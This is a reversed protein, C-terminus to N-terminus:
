FSRLVGGLKEAVANIILDSADKIEQDNLTHDVPNFTVSLAVSLKNDGISNGEYLDFVTVNDILVPNSNKTVDILHQVSTDKDILFAFDRKVSQYCSETLEKHAVDVKPIKYLFVEFCVVPRKIEYLHVINPHLEGFYGLCIDKFYVDASRVPHLYSKDSKRLEISNSEINLEQLISIVDSKVDFVDVSRDCKYLNRPLNNGYRVGCVVNSNSGCINNFGYVQGIEFIAIESSGYAQNEYVVQLLNLLLSPRMLNLKDSIPNDILLLESSYGLKEAFVMNTFSWTIVEMLGESLLLAKLRDHYDDSIDVHSIPIPEECIKDYGYLRLVEEVIDSSHKIDSRWSPVTVRWLFENNNDVIFGLKILFDFIEENSINVNGISRVSDPFFNLEINDVVHVENSVVDFHTGGCYELIMKTALDLGTQLFRPDVFREFRYSSDTSLKIKKSSLVIDVPAFWASELFIDETDLLCSSLKSGIVGAVSHISNELDVAVINETGLIYKKDNLAYFETQNDAKKFILKNKIKNADYVHLPRNFSLMIYNTIDVVFSISNIGCVLLYDKLWKPSECNKIGKIYRGKVIGDVQVSVEIPSSCNSHNSLEGICKLKGLGAAALDRAIGYVGLCDGRNPTISVEIIPDCPFFTDGVNYTNPLEIIGNKSNRHDVIGLEDNSCLMGYSEVGRLKVVEIISQDTPMISGVCALVSKMGVKVNSAGCVVQLIQKGDSVKCIKLKNASHHPNVELVEAIVFTKLHECYDVNNVEIGIDSLKKIIVDLSVDTDLYRRLWSFTFKM